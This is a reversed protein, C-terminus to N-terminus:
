SVFPLLIFVCRCRSLLPLFDSFPFCHSAFVRLSLLRLMQQSQACCFFHEVLDLEVLVGDSRRSTPQIRLGDRQWVGLVLIVNISVAASM